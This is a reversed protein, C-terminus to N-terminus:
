KRKRKTSKRKKVIKKKPKIAAKIKNIQVLIINIFRQFDKIKFKMDDLDGRCDRTFKNCLGLIEDTRKRLIQNQSLIKENLTFTRGMLCDVDEALENLKKM